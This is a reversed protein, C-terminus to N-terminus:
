LLYKNLINMLKDFEIPKILFDNMGADIAEQQQETFAEASLAVIPTETFDPYQRIQKKAEKGDIGPLHIDMLILQPNLELTKKVGSEGDDAFHVTMGIEDFFDKLLEQNILNDEVVLIVNDKSFHCNEMDTLDQETPHSIAENLPLVVNFNSGNGVRSILSIRGGLIEVLRRTITLGLGSGGYQRSISGDAQEFPDFIVKQKNEPIGIGQDIVMFSILNDGGGAVKLKVEKQAPTFKIANGVLNILIQSLKSKDVHIYTPLKSDFEYSFFVGKKMAQSEYNYYINKILDKLNIDEETLELKGAEIRSIELIDNILDILNQGSININELFRQFDDPLSLKKCRNLLIQTFGMIANMPTRIEHSMNTLFQTKAQNAIEAHNKALKLEEEMQKKKTVDRCLGELAIINNQEDFIGTNSQFIWRENGEPDIIKYEYTGSIKGNLLEAWKEKFYDVFDPHIIEKILLPNNFWENSEYGFVSKSAQSFYEYKGDPLSMRYAADNLGELIERHKKESERLSREAQKLETIDQAVCVIGQINEEEDKMVSGSFLVPIKRGDKALYISEVVRSFDDQIKKDNVTGWFSGQAVEVILEIPKGILEQKEYGLLHLTAQNVTSITMDPNVVVLADIMSKLINDVYNKSVTTRLLKEEARKRDTIDTHMGVLGIVKDDADKISYARLFINLINRNKGFMEVEGIWTGGSMITEFVDRGINEDAYVTSPPGTKGETEDVSLGFLKDFAKNQYYHNGEPTSMGIADSASDVAEQFYILREEVQKNNLANKEFQAIQQRLEGLENILQKRTKKEDEM